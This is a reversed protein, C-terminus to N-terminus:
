DLTSRTPWVPQISTREGVFTLAHVGLRMAAGVDLEACRVGCEADPFGVELDSRVPMLPGITDFAVDQNAEEGANTEITETRSSRAHPRAGDGDGDIRTTPGRM